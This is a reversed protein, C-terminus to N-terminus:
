FQLNVGVSITRFLGYENASNGTLSLRPDYGQRASLLWVNNALAYFRLSSLGLKEVVNPSFTYGLSINQLSVYDSKTLFLTSAGYYNNPDTNDVRPLTADTNDPTWTKEITDKHFNAGNENGFMGWYSGDIGYGGFQYAFDLNLDFNKYTFSTNFGGYVEPSADKDTRYRTAQAFNETIYKAGPEAVNTLPNIESYWQAAGNVPNVGVFERMFYSYRSFGEELRFSGDDIFDQPLKTIENKFQTANVGVAFTFDKTRIVDANITLEFGKNEMSGINEPQSTLGSSPPLPLHFLMDDVKRIFYEANLQVRNNFLATEFGFNINTNTEWTIDKNGLYVLDLGPTTEGVPAPTFEYQSQYAYYNRLGALPGNGPYLLADNGQQGYSGKLKLEDLWSVNQLFKEQSLRWALGFGYFNGWRNDPHFVSSADRRFSLNLYYKNDYDYLVRAFYGELNYDNEYNTTGSIIGAFDGVYGSPLLFGQKSASLYKLNFDSTEHGLLVGLNHNGFKRAYNLLQQQTFTFATSADPATRGIATVADGYLPTDFDVDATSRYDASLTYKFNFDKFFDVDAYVTGFVNDTTNRKVDLLATAVPNQFNGYPRTIGGNNNGTGDDYFRTGNASFLPNGSADYTFVPYIPAVSRTWNFPSSYAGSGDGGDLRNQVTHVYSMTSGMRFKDSINFDNSLRTTIREFGSNVVYGDNKDYGLSFFTKVNESGGSVSLHTQSFSRENFLYDSWKENYLLRASPNIKGTLPNIVQDSPVNYNNYNLTEAFNIGTGFDNTFDIINAAAFSSATSYDLGQNFMMNNRVFQFQGEYYQSPSTVIDYEKVARANVGTKVDLTVALKTKKGKKTTIMIVGNAGRNGYLAASAADKLFVLSEVDYNSITNIDGNFPVGDVVYLPASSANISGIGRFRVVPASGPQGNNNVIQVGAIKGTLGQVVNSNQIQQVEKEKVVVSSGTLAEKKQTGYAVVVVENLIMGEDLVIKYSNADGVTISQPNYGTFSVLIVDGKKAKISYKGDFDTQVGSTSGKVIVNAGPLPGLKDTVVGTVTKEQAFSLQMSFALLLTFIWKFKSRM